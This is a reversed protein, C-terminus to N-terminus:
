LSGMGAASAYRRQDHSRMGDAACEHTGDRGVRRAGLAFDIIRSADFEGRPELDRLGPVAENTWDVDVDRPLNWARVGSASTGAAHRM